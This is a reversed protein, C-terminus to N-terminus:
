PPTAKVYDTWIGIPWSVTGAAPVGGLGDLSRLTTVGHPGPQTDWLAVSTVTGGSLGTYWASDDGGITGPVGGFSPVPEGATATLGLHLEKVSLM